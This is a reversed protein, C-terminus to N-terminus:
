RCSARGIQASGDLTSGLTATLSLITSQATPSLTLSIVAVVGNPITNSNIGTALCTYNGVGSACSVSKGASIAAPGETAYVAAISSAPYNLTWQLGAPSTTSTTLSLNVAVVAGPTASAPSLILSGSQAHLRGILLAFFLLGRGRFWPSVPM